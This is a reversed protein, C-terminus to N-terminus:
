FKVNVFVIKKGNCRYRIQDDVRVVKECFISITTHETPHITVCGSVILSILIIGIVKM